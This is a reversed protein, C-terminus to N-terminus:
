SSFPVGSGFVTLVLVTISSAAVRMVAVSV